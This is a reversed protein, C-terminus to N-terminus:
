PQMQNSRIHCTYKLEAPLSHTEFGVEPYINPEVSFKPFTIYYSEMIIATVLLQMNYAKTITLRGTDTLTKISFLIGGLYNQQFSKLLPPSLTLPVLAHHQPPQYGLLLPLHNHTSSALLSFPIDGSDLSLRLWVLLHLQCFSFDQSIQHSGSSGSVFAPSIPFFYELM